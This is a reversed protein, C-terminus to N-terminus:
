PPNTLAALDREIKAAEIQIEKPLELIRPSQRLHGRRFVQSFPIPTLNFTNQNLWECIKMMMTDTSPHRIVRFREKPLSNVLAIINSNYQIYSESFDKIHAKFVEEYTIQPRTIKSWIWRIPNKQKRKNKAKLENYKRRILSEVVNDIDRWVVLYFADPLLKNYFSVFLCTRPDKWGWSKNQSNKQAILSRLRNLNEPTIELNPTRLLAGKSIGNLKFMEEHFNCFQVDEFHGDKNSEHAGILHDGIHLGCKQLWNATLSTGSRHMGLIVLVKNKDPDM